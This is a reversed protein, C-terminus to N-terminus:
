LENKIKFSKYGFIISVYLLTKEIKEPSTEKKFELIIENENIIVKEIEINEYKLREEYIEKTESDLELNNKTKYTLNNKIYIVEQSFSFSSILLLVIIIIKKM